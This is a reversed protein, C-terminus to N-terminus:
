RMRLRMPWRLGCFSAEGDNNINQLPLVAITRQTASAPTASRHRMWWMGGGDRGGAGRACGNWFWGPEKERSNEFARTSIRPVAARGMKRMGDRLGCRLGSASVFREGGASGQESGAAPTVLDTKMEAANKYRQNRDKEMAKGIIGELETPVAPNISRPSAPKSNIM